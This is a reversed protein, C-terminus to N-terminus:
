AAQRSEAEAVFRWSVRGDMQGQHLWFNTVQALGGSAVNRLRVRSAPSQSDPPECDEVVYEAERGDLYVISWRQGCQITGGLSM